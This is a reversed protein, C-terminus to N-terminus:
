RGLEPFLLRAEALLCGRLFLARYRYSRYSHCSGISM